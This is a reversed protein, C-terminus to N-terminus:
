FPHLQWILAINTADFFRRTASAEKFLRFLFIGHASIKGLWFLNIKNQVFYRLVGHFRIHL